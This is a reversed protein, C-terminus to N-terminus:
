SGILPVIVLANRKNAPLAKGKGHEHGLAPQKVGQGDTKEQKVMPPRFKERWTLSLRRGAACGSPESVAAGEFGAGGAEETKPPPMREIGGQREKVKVGEQRETM